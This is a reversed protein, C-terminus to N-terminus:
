ERRPTYSEVERWLGTPECSQGGARRASVVIVCAPLSFIIIKADIWVTLKGVTSNGSGAWDAKVVPSQSQSQSQARSPSPAPPRRAYLSKQRVSAATWFAARIQIRM